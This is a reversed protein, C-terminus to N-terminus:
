FSFAFLAKRMLIHSSYIFCHKCFKWYTASINRPAKIKSSGRSSNNNNNNIVQYHHHDDGTKEVFLNLTSAALIFNGGFKDLTQCLRSIHSPFLGSFLSQNGENKKTIGTHCWFCPGLITQASKVVQTVRM